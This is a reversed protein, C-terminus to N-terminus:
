RSWDKLHLGLSSHGISAPPTWLLYKGGPRLV